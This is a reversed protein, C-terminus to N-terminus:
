CKAERKVAYGFLLTQKAAIKEITAVYYTYTRFEGGAVKNQAFIKTRRGRGAYAIDSALRIDAAGGLPARVLNQRGLDRQFRGLTLQAQATHHRDRLFEFGRGGSESDPARDLQAVRGNM